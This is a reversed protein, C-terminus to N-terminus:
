YNIYSVPIGYECVVLSSIGNTEFLKKILNGEDYVVNRQNGQDESTITVITYGHEKYYETYENSDLDDSFDFVLYNNDYSSIFNKLSEESIYKSLIVNITKSIDTSENSFVVKGNSDMIFSQPTLGTNIVSMGNLTYNIINSIGLNEIRQWPIEDEWLVM